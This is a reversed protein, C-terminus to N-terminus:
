KSQLFAFQHFYNFLKQMEDFSVRVRGKDGYSLGWSNLLVFFKGNPSVGKVLICHYGVHYGSVKLYPRSKPVEYMGSFWPIVLVAPGNYGVGLILEQLTSGWTYSKILSADKLVKLGHVLSTGGMRPNAGPYEGGPFEDIMQAKFYIEEKAFKTDLKNIIGPFREEINTVHAESKLCQTLGHGVCSGEGGQDLAGDTLWYKNIPVQSPVTVPFEQNRFDEFPIADMRVDYTESGDRLQKSTNLNIEEQM